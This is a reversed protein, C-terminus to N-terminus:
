QGRPAAALLPQPEHTTHHAHREPPTSARHHSTNPLWVRRTHRHHVDCETPSGRPSVQTVSPRDGLCRNAPASSGLSPRPPPHLLGPTTSLPNTGQPQHHLRVAQQQTNAAAHSLPPSLIPSVVQQPKHTTPHQCSSQDQNSGQQTFCTDAVCQQAPHRTSVISTNSSHTSHTAHTCAACAPRADNGPVARADCGEKQAGPMGWESRTVWLALPPTAARYAGAAATPPAANSRTPEATKQASPPAPTHPIRSPHPATAAAATHGKCLQRTHTM